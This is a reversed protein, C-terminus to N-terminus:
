LKCLDAYFEDLKDEDLESLKSAGYDALLAKKGDKNDVALMKERIVDLTIKEPVKAVKAKGGKAPTKPDAGPEGFLEDIEGKIEALTGNFEIKM